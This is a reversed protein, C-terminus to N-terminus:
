NPPLPSPLPLKFSDPNPPPSPRTRTVEVENSPDSRYGDTTEAIVAYRYRAGMTTEGDIYSFEHEIQFREQDTVPIELLPTMPGDGEARMVVFASLDRMTHGGAYRTPRGWSLAIGGAAPDARLDLIREPQAQQPPVPASKVGCGGISLAAIIAIAATAIAGRAGATMKLRRTSIRRM